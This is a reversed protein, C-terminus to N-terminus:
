NKKPPPDPVNPPRVRNFIFLPVKSPLIQPYGNKKQPPPSDGWFLGGPFRECWTRCVQHSLCWLFACTWCKDQRRRITTKSQHSFVMVTHLKKRSPGLFPPTQSGWEKALHCPIVLAHLAASKLAWCQRSRETPGCHLFCSKSSGLPLRRTWCSRLDHHTQKWRSGSHCCQLLHSTLM